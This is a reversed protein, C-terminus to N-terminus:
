TTMRESELQMISPLQRVLTTTTQPHQTQIARPVVQNNRKFWCVSSKVQERVEKSGICYMYFDEFSFMSLSVINISFESVQAFYFM